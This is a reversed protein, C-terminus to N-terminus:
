IIEYILDYNIYYTNIKKTKFINELSYKNILHNYNKKNLVIKKLKNLGKLGNITIKNNNKLILTHLNTLKRLEVDTIMINNTLNLVELNVLKDFDKNYHFLKCYIFKKTSLNLVTFRSLSLKSLYNYSVLSIYDDKIKIKSNKSFSYFEKNLFKCENPAYKYIIRFIDTNM